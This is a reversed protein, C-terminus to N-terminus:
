AKAAARPMSALLAGVFALGVHVENMVVSARHYSVFEAPRPQEPPTIMAELPLYVLLYDATMVGLAVAVCAVSLTWRRNSWAPSHRSLLLGLLGLPVLIFGAAYYPPFRILALQNRVVSDFDSETVLRIGNVVFLIAAGIWASLAVRAITLSLRSM